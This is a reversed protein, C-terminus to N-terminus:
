FQDNEVQSRDIMLPTIESKVDPTLKRMDNNLLKLNQYADNYSSIVLQINKGLRKMYEDYRAVHQVMKRVNQLIDDISEKVQLAHLAQIIVQLYAFFTSPTVMIVRQSFAYALLDNQGTVSDRKGTSDLLHYFVGEGPIFMLVFDTTNEAPRIYKKTENIRAKLDSWIQKELRERTETDQADLYQHYGALSFKADIPVVKDKVIVVADVTEGDKFRYQMQFQGPPLVNGLINELLYEGYIGRQKPNRLVYELRQLQQAFGVVQKNTDDLRTLKETVKQIIDTGQVLQQHILKQSDSLSQTVTNLQNQLMLFSQDTDRAKKLDRVSALLYLLVGLFALLVIFLGCIIGFYM